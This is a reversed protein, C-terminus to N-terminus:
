EWHESGESVKVVLLLIKVSLLIEVTISARWPVGIGTDPVVVV